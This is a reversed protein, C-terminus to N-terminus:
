GAAPECWTDPSVAHSVSISESDPYDPYQPYRGASSHRPYALIYYLSVVYTNREREGEFVFILDFNCTHRDYTQMFVNIDFKSFIKTAM